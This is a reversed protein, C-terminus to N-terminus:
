IFPYWDTVYFSIFIYSINTFTVICDFESYELITIYHQTLELIFSLPCLYSLYSYSCYNTLPYVIYFSMFQSMMFMFHLFM